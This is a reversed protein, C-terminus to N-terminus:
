AMLVAAYQVYPYCTMMDYLDGFMTSLYGFMICVFLYVDYRYASMMLYAFMM